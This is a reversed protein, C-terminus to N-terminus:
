RDVNLGDLAFTGAFSFSDYSPAQFGEGCVEVVWSEIDAPLSPGVIRTAVAVMM